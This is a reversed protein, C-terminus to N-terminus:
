KRLLASWNQVLVIPSITNESLSEAVIFRRSATTVDFSVARPADFLKRM